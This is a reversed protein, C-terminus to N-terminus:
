RYRPANFDWTSSRGLNMIKSDFWELFTKCEDQSIKGAVSLHWSSPDRSFYDTGALREFVKQVKQHLDLEEDHMKKRFSEENEIQERKRKSTRFYPTLRLFIDVSATM